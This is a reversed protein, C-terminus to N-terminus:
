RYVNTLIIVIIQFAIEIPLGIMFKKHRTKHHILKMIIYEFLAGGILGITMLFDESVRRKGKVANRKDIVTIIATLSNIVIFYIILAKTM